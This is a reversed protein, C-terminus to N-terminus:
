PERLVQEAEARFAKLESVHEPSLDKRGECWRVAQDFCKRAEVPDQLRAHCMALFFLDFGDWQGRGAARGKELTAAAQAYHRNRFLVVGLTNLFAPNDPQRELARRVLELARAPDREKAPGTVLRRAENNLVAPDSGACRLAEERDAKALDPKGMAEYCAARQEYLQPRRPFTRIAVTLDAAAADPRNRRQNIGARFLRAQGDDPYRDLFRTADAEADDWRGLRYGAEARLLRATHLDPRLSVAVGLHAHAEAFKGAQFFLEGLRSRADPDFRNFFLAALARETERRTMKERSTAAEPEVLEVELPAVPGADGAPAPFAPQVDPWDLGLEALQERIRRLDFVYHEGTEKGSVVLLSGDPSFEHPIVESTEVSPLRAIEEDTGATVLRVSGELTGYARLRGDPSFAGGMRMPESRWRQPMPAQDAPVPRDRDAALSAVELRREEKGGVYVWRSDPSFGRCGHVEPYPLSAVLRGTDAEWLKCSSGSGDYWFSATVVWRGDPSVPAYRTDYQPGLHLVRRPPGPHVVVAGANSLALVAVRGDDSVSFDDFGKPPLDAVWEPPGIRWRQPSGASPRVPWRVLGAAGATWLAGTRDFMLHESFGGALFAVEEGTPLDFFVLGTPTTGALLRGDPHLHVNLLREAGQPTPRRLARREQGGAVRLSRWTEHVDQSILSHDDSGFDYGQGGPMTFLLQGTASNWLRVVGDWYRGVVRDGAHNFAVRIGPYKPGEWTGTLPRGSEADWLRRGAACSVVLRHGRPHWDLGYVTGPQVLRHLRVGRGVDWLGVERGCAVALRPLRPHFALCFVPGPGPALRRIREGTETDYITVAGDAHGFAVQRSDPRFAKAEEHVGDRDERVLRPQPTDVRWLCVPVAKWEGQPEAAALLFRGDPSCPLGGHLRFAPAPLRRFTFEALLRQRLLPDLGEPLPRHPDAPGEAVKEGDPVCLAAVAINRLRLRDEDGLGVERAVDLADRVRRLTDFRQGPGRAIRKADAESVYSAFLKHKGEREAAQASGLADHLRLSMVLGGVASLVLLLLVLGGLSAVVPNRRVWRWTREHWPTRRALIPRDALFRGLDEALAEATAYREAPDKALCKLVVTELDRPIRPDLHRPPAPPQRLVKEVLRAKNADEFPPRLALLEYLTVGLSYVDSQPLSRNDFREPAMFRVTGVIDGTHTLEDAGEAKALGFDTVWVTGQQDLLLNSPKVDRHLVGNRHAYALAEAVQQCVRAVSRFYGGESGAGSLTSSSHQGPSADPVSAEPAPAEAFCGSLLSRAISNEAVTPEPLVETAGPRRLRRLDRLVRDLGEGRIFQMAYFHVGDCEGVGFVPVINTHHLKAAARAERRFRELFTPALLAHSPLVKLAVHRGLSVQEAEYVVGMGGRGVERLIHYDGVREIARASPPPGDPPRGDYAGTDDATAPKFQEMVVLAPFLQRIEDAHQPYKQVYEALSPREGRRYREAFEEALREVPNRDASSPTM